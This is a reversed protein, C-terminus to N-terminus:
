REKSIAAAEAASVPHGVLELARALAPDRGAALDAPTPLVSEDPAVGRGELVSGDAMVIQADAVSMAYAFVTAGDAIDGPDVAFTPLKWVLVDDGIDHFRPAWREENEQAEGLLARIDSGGDQGTLDLVRPRQRVRAAVDLQRPAGGPSRM